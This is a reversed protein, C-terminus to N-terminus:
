VNKSLRTLLRWHLTCHENINSCGSWSGLSGWAGSGSERWNLAEYGSKFNSLVEVFTSIFYLLTTSPVTQSDLNFASVLLWGSLHHLHGRGQVRVPSCSKHPHRQLSKRVKHQFHGLPVLLLSHEQLTNRNSNSKTKYCPRFILTYLFNEIIPLAIVSILM